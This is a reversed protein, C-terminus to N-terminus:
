AIKARQASFSRAEYLVSFFANKSCGTTPEATVLVTWKINELESGRGAFEPGTAGGGAALGAGGEGPRGAPTRTESSCAVM